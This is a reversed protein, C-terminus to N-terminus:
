SAGRYLTSLQTQSPSTNPTSGNIGPPPPCSRKAPMPITVVDDGEVNKKASEEANGGNGAGIAVKSQGNSASSSNDESFRRKKAPQVGHSRASDVKEKANLDSASSSRPSSTSVTGSVQPSPATYSPSDSNRPSNSSMQSLNSGHRTIGHNAVAHAASQKRISEMDEASLLQSLHSRKAYKVTVTTTAADASMGRDIAVEFSNIVDSLDINLKAPPTSSDTSQSTTSAAAAATATSSHNTLSTSSTPNRDFEMGIFWKKVFPADGDLPGKGYSHCNVHALKVYRNNEASSVLIRLRSEVLGCREKFPRKEEGTVIVVVYHRYTFFFAPEFLDSWPRKQLLIEKVVSLGHKIERDIIIRNSRQVNYTSNQSPYSPTLIPMLHYQDTPNHRPDWVPLNLSAIYESERLRVPKPWPWQSYIIFFLHVITSPPAFPYLQCIRCTLIAWSVGGLFGIANSYINKRKAWLRIVKLATKFADKPYVLNLMDETVRVGNVSRVDREDMNRLLQESNDSLNFDSRVSMLDVQAFLLDIEVGMLKMKLLPVYADQVAQLDEVSEEAALVAQFDSFFEERTIFRPVVLLADIDAGIFNVGLRYSGFTFIKGTTSSANHEPLNQELAKKYIWHNSIEQLKILAERRQHIEEQTEFINMQALTEELAVSDKLEQESPPRNSLPGTEGLCQAPIDDINVVKSM